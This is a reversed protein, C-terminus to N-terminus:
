VPRGSPGEEGVALSIRRDRGALRCARDQDLQRAESLGVRVFRLVDGPRAQGLRDLDAGVVHALHPYGGMTGGAVGLILPRGGAIQVAGPAVPASRRGPRGAGEVTAGELRLGVRDSAAGVRYPDALLVPPIPGDPGDLLRIPGDTPDPRAADVPRRTAVRGGRGEETALLGGTRLPTESSRGGLRLPSAWGGRAALYARLGRPSGGLALTEGTALTFSGPIVLRRRDGSPDRVEAVFPAGTLALALDALALYSGGIMTLEIAPADPGNGLLANALGLSDLDFAGGPPVGFERRGPRGRDQITAWLGPNLILLSM